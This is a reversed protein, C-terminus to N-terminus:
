INLTVIKSVFKFTIFNSRYNSLFSAQINDPFGYFLKAPGPKKGAIRSLCLSRSEYTEIILWVFNRIQTIRQRPRLEQILRDWTDYLPNIPM